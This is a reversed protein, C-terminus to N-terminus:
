GVVEYVILSAHDSTGSSANVSGTGATVSWQIKIVHAGDSLNFTKYVLAACGGNTTSVCFFDSGRRIVGDVLLQFHVRAGSTTNNGSASFFVCLANQGTNVNLTMFDVFSTSTTTTDVSLRSFVSQVIRTDLSSTM